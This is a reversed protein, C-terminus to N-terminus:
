KIRFDRWGFILIWSILSRSFIYKWAPNSWYVLLGSTKLFIKSFHNAWQSFLIYANCVLEYFLHLLICIYLKCIQWRWSHCSRSEKNREWQFCLLSTNAMCIWKRLLKTHLFATSWYNVFDVRPNIPKYTKPYVDSFLFRCYLNKYIGRFFSFPLMFQLNEWQLISWKARLISIKKQPNIKVLRLYPMPMYGSRGSHLNILFAFTIKLVLHKWLLAVSRAHQQQGLLRRSRFKM